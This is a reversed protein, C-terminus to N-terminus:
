HLETTGQRAKKVNPLGHKETPIFIVLTSDFMIQNDPNKDLDMNIVYNQIWDPRADDDEMMGIM